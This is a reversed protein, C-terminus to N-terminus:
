EVRLEFAVLAREHRPWDTSAGAPQLPSATHAILLARGPAPYEGDGAPRSRRELVIRSPLGLHPRDHPSASLARRWTAEGLKAGRARDLRRELRAGAGISGLEYGYGGILLWADSLERGSGNELVLRPGTTEDRVSAELHFAIVDEGELAHLAYRRPDLPELYRRPGEGFVWDEVNGERQARRTPYLVPEAGRYELRQPGSRAAYV